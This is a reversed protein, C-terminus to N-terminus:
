RRLVLYDDRTIWEGRIRKKDFVDKWIPEPIQRLVRTELKERPYQGSHKCMRGEAAEEAKKELKRRTEAVDVIGFRLLDEAFAREVSPGTEGDAFLDAAVSCVADTLADADEHALKIANVRAYYREGSEATSLRYARVQVQSPTREVSDVESLRYRVRRVTYYVARTGIGAVAAVALGIVWPLEFGLALLYVSIMAVVPVGRRFLALRVGTDAALNSVAGRVAPLADRAVWAAAGIAVLALVVVAVQVALSGALFAGIIGSLQGTAVAAVLYIPILMAAVAAVSMGVRRVALYAIAARDPDNHARVLARTDRLIARGILYLFAVTVVAAALLGVVAGITPFGALSGLAAPVAGAVWVSVVALVVTSLSFRTTVSIERAEPARRDLWVVAAASALLLVILPVPHDYLWSAAQVSYAFTLAWVLDAFPFAGLADVALSVVQELAWRADLLLEDVTMGEGGAFVRRYTGVSVHVLAATVSLGVALELLWRALRPIATTYSGWADGLEQRVAGVATRVSAEEVAPQEGDFLARIQERKADLDDDPRLRLTAAELAERQGLLARKERKQAESLGTFQLLYSGVVLALGFGVLLVVAFAMQAATVGGTSLDISSQLITETM